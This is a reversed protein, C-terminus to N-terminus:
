EAMERERQGFNHIIPPWQNDFVFSMEITHYDQPHTPPHTTPLPHHHTTLLPSSVM